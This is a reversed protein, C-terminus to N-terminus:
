WVAASRRVSRFRRCRSEPELLVCTLAASFKLEVFIAVAVAAGPEDPAFEAAVAGGAGGDPEPEDALIEELPEPLAAMTRPSAFFCLPLNIAATAMTASRAAAMAKKTKLGRAWWFVKLACFMLMRFSVSVPLADPTAMEGLPWYTTYTRRSPSICLRITRCTAVPLSTCIRAGATLM